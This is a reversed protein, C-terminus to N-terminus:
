RRPMSHSPSSSYFIRSTAPHVNQVPRSSYQPTLAAFSRKLNFLMRRAKIAASVVNDEASLRSNLVIGLDKTTSVTPLTQTNPPNHSPLTSTVFQPSNGIPLHESKNPNLDLEWDKSWSASISLSNKLIDHHYRPTILKVDDAYLLSDASVHDPLYNVYTVYITDPSM